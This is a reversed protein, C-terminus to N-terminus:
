YSAGNKLVARAVEEFGLGEARRTVHAPHARLESWVARVNAVGVSRPFGAFMPEDNLADGVYLYPSLDRPDGHLVRRVVRQCTTLKDFGPPWFNVHVSSRVARYGRARLAGELRCAAEEGLHVEENWDFALDVETYASDTSLRAGPVERAVAEADRLMRRRLAPLRAMPLAYFRRVRGGPRDPAVLALGGNEAVVARVPWTRALTDGCGASRGTVVVVPIGAEVLRELCALTSARVRGQTTLTGDLDTFVARVARAPM